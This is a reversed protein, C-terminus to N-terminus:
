LMLKFGNGEILLSVHFKSIINLVTGCLIDENLYLYYWWIGDYENVMLEPNHKLSYNNRLEKIMQVVEKKSITGVYDCDKIM